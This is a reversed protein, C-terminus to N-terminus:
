SVPALGSLIAVCGLLPAGGLAEETSPLVPPGASSDVPMIDSTHMGCLGTEGPGWTATRMTKWAFTSCVRELM